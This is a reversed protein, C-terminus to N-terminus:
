VCFTNLENIDVDPFRTHEGQFVVSEEVEAASETEEELEEVEKCGNKQRRSERGQVDRGQDFPPGRTRPPLLSIWKRLELMEGRFLHIRPFDQLQEGVVLEDLLGLGAHDEDAPPVTQHREIRKSPQVVIM